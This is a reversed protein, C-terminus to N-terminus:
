WMVVPLAGKDFYMYYPINEPVTYFPRFKSRNFGGGPKRVQFGGPTGEPVLMKEFEEDSKPLTFRIEQWEGEMIMTVPGRVAAVRDPHQRDVAQLQFHLPIHLEVKDGSRWVRELSAWTGPRAEVPFDQGNVKATVGRSWAPVRFKLPFRVPKELELTLLSTETEPYGTEQVLKVRGGARNWSVESSVFLNVHLSAADRYYIQNPYDAVCQFYTGACCPWLSKYYVKMGGGTRYDSYYFTKGEPTVPLAAGIGNYFMREVWDGYRAEGTFSILYRALKFAAWSGCCTEFTDSRVALVRGLGGTGAVLTESPGYGGTVYCQTAQLWDYAHRIIKLYRAEGTVAYAMAASSFSNVHSYAHFGYAEPPSASSAFPDWFAPYLWLDGFARYRANGTLQYARYFNEGLTYWEHSQGSPDIERSAPKNERSLTREAWATVRELLPAAGEIGGYAQLDVLGCVLKEFTYHGMRCDGDAGVLEAWGKFLRVAKERVAPEGTCRYFRALSSLWQGFVVSSDGSCWGGMGKGRAPQSLASRFGHLLDDEPFTLLFELAAQYQSHWRGPRLRVDKYDFPELKILGDPSPAAWAPTVGLAAAATAACKM